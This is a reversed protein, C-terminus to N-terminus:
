AVCPGSMWASADVIKAVAGLFMIALPHLRSMLFENFQAVVAAEETGNTTICKGCQWLGPVVKSLDFHLISAVAPTM